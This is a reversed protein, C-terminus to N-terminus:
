VLEAMSVIFEKWVFFDEQSGIAEHLFAATEEEELLALLATTLFFAEEFRKVLTGLNNEAQIGLLSRKYYECFYKAMGEDVLTQGFSKWLTIFDDGLGEDMEEESKFQKDLEVLENAIHNFSELYNKLADFDSKESVYVLSRLKALATSDLPPGLQEFEPEVYVYAEDKEVNDFMYMSSQIGYKEIEKIFGKPLLFGIPHDQCIFLYDGDLAKFAWKTFQELFPYSNRRTFNWTYVTGDHEFCIEMEADDEDVGDSAVAPKLGLLKVKVRRKSCRALEEVNGYFEDVFGEIGGGDTMSYWLMRNSAFDTIVQFIFLEDDDEYLKLAKNIDKEKILDYSRFLSVIEQASM